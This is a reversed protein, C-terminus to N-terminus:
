DSHIASYTSSVLGVVGMVIGLGLMIRGMLVYKGKKSCLKLYFISPLLLNLGNAATSGVFEFVTNISPVFVALFIVVIYVCTVYIVYGMQSFGYKEEDSQDPKASPQSSTPENNEALKDAEEDSSIKKTGKDAGKRFKIIAGYINNKAGFFMLPFTFTSSILFAVNLVVFFFSGLNERTFAKLLNEGEPGFVLFGSNAVALYITIVLGLGLRTVKLMRADTPDRLSKYVPFFNFQFTFALFVSTISGLAAPIDDFNPWLQVDLQEGEAWVRLFNIVTISCFISTASVALISVGQLKALNKAFIFPFVCLGALITLVERACYFPLDAGTEGDNVKCQPAFESVMNNGVTAFIILYAVSLGMNNIIIIAKVAWLGASGLCYDAITIYKSHKSLNKAKLLMICSFYTLMCSIGIIISGFLMGFRHILKPLALIGAGMITNAINMASGFVPAKEKEGHKGHGEGEEGSLVDPMLEKDEHFVEGSYLPENLPSSEAM